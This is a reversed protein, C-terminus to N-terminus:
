GLRKGVVGVGVNIVSSPLPRLSTVPRHFCRGSPLPPVTSAAVPPFRSSPPPM